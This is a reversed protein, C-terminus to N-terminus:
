VGNKGEPTCWFVARVKDGRHHCAKYKCDCAGVSFERGIRAMEDRLAVVRRDAFEPGSRRNFIGSSLETITYWIASDINSKPEWRSGVQRFLHKRMQPSMDEPLGCPDLFPELHAFEDVWGDTSSWLTSYFSVMQQKATPHEGFDWIPLESPVRENEPVGLLAIAEIPDKPSYAGWKPKARPSSPLPPCVAQWGSGTSCEVALHVKWGM